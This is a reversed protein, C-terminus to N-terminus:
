VVCVRDLPRTHAMHSPYIWILDSDRVYTPVHAASKSSRVDSNGSSGSPIIGLIKRPNSSVPKHKHKHKQIKTNQCRKKRRKQM